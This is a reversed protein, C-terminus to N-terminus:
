SMYVEEDDEFEKLRPNFFATNTDQIAENVRDVTPKPIVTERFPVIPKSVNLEVKAFRFFPFCVCVNSKSILRSNFITTNTDLHSTEIM